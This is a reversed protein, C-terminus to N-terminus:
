EGGRLVDRIILRTFKKVQEDTPNYEDSLTYGYSFAEFMKYFIYAVVRPDLGSRGGRKMGERVYTEVIKTYRDEIEFVLRMVRPSVIEPDRKLTRKLFPHEEMYDMANTLFSELVQVPDDLHKAKHYLERQLNRAEQEMLHILIDEKNSFQAYLTAKSIAADAAIEDMTTKKYGYHLFRERAAELIRNRRVSEANQAAQNQVVNIRNSKNAAGGPQRGAKTRKAPGVGVTKKDAM